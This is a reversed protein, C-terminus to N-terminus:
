EEAKQQTAFGDLKHVFAGGDGSPDGVNCFRFMAAALDHQLCVSVVPQTVNGLDDRYTSNIAQSSNVASPERRSTKCRNFNMRTVEMVSM